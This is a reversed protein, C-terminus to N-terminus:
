DINVLFFFLWTYNYHIGLRFLYQSISIFDQLKSMGLDFM